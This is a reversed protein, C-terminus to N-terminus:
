SILRRIAEPNRATFEALDRRAQGTNTANQLTTTYYDILQAGKLDETRARESARMAIEQMSAVNGANTTEARVEQTKYAQQLASNQQTSSPGQENMRAADINIDQSPPLNM